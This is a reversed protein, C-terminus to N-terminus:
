CICAQPHTKHNFIIGKQYNKLSKPYFGFAQGVLRSVSLLGTKNFKSWAQNFTLIITPITRSRSESNTLTLPAPRQM